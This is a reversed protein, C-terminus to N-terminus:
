VYPHCMRIHAYMYPTDCPAHPSRLWVMVDADVQPVCPYLSRGAAEGIRKLDLIPVLSPMVPISVSSVRIVMM